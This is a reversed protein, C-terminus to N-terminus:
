EWAPAFMPPHPLCAGTRDRDLSRFWECNGPDCGVIRLAQLTRSPPVSEGSGPVPAPGDFRDLWQGRRLREPRSRHGGPVGWACADSVSTADRLVATRLLKGRKRGRCARAILRGSTNEEIRHSQDLRLPSRDSKPGRSRSNVDCSLSSTDIVACGSLLIM